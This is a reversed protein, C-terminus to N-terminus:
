GQRRRLIIVIIFLVIAIGFLGVVLPITSEEGTVPLKQLYLAGITNLVKSFMSIQGAKRFIISCHM